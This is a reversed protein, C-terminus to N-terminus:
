PEKAAYFNRIERHSPYPFVPPTLYKSSHYLKMQHFRELKNTEEAPYVLRVPETYTHVSIVYTSSVSPCARKNLDIKVGRWVGDKIQSVSLLTLWFSSVDTGLLYLYQVTFHLLLPSVITKQTKTIEVRRYAM